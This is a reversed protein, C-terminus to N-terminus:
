QFKWTGSIIPDSGYDAKVYFIVIPSILYCQLWVQKWYFKICFRSLSWSVSWSLFGMEVSMIIIKRCKMGGNSAVGVGNSVNGNAYFVSFYQLGMSVIERYWYINSANSILFFSVHGIWTRKVNTEPAVDLDKSLLM